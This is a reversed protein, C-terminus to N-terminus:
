PQYGGSIGSAPYHSYQDQGPYARWVTQKVELQYAREQESQEAATKYTVYFGPNVRNNLGTPQPASHIEFHLHPDRGGSYGTTGTLGIAKTINTVVDGEKVFSTLLHGYKFYFSGQDNFGPGETLERVLSVGPAGNPYTPVFNSKRRTRVFNPNLAELVIIVGYTHQDNGREVRIVRSPVCAYVPTEPVALLDVGQHVGNPDRVRGFTYHWPKYGGGQSYLCLLMVDLPERWADAIGETAVTHPAGDPGYHIGGEDAEGSTQQFVKIFKKFM